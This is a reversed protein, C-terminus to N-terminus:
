FQTESRRKDYKQVERYNWYSEEARKWKLSLFKKGFLRAAVGMTTFLLFFLVSLIVRTMVWGLIMALAMWAKQLPKLVSPVLFGCLILVMGGIILYLFFTKGLWWFVGGLVVLALGVTLGFNRTDKRVSKIDETKELLM